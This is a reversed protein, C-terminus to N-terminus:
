KRPFPSLDVIQTITVSILYEPKPLLSEPHLFHTKNEQINRVVRRTIRSSIRKEWVSILKSTIDKKGVIKGYGKLCYGQFGHEDVATISMKPNKILNNRTIRLYTDLLYIKGSPDIDVIGKCSSHPMGTKDITTVIVFSQVKLFHMIEDNLKKM